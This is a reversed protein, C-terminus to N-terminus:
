KGVAKSQASQPESSQEPLQPESGQPDKGICIQFLFVVESFAPFSILQKFHHFRTAPNTVAPNKRADM